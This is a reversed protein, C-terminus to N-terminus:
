CIGAASRRMCLVPLHISPDATDNLEPYYICRSYSTSAASPRGAPMQRMTQSMGCSAWGNLCLRAHCSLSTERYIEAVTKRCHRSNICPFRTSLYLRFSSHGRTDLWETVSSTPLSGALAARVNEPWIKAHTIHAVRPWQGSAPSEGSLCVVWSAPLALRVSYGQDSLHREKRAVLAM